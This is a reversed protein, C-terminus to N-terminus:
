TRPKRPKAVRKIGCGYPKSSTTTVQKGALVSNLADTVYPVYEASKKTNKPDNDLAGAYRVVGKGDIVFTHPTTQAQFLDALVNGVDAVLRYKVGKKAADGRFRAFPKTPKGKADVGPKADAIEGKNSNIGIMVVEKGQFEKAMTKLKPVAPKMYPCTMSYWSLVVTKGRLDKMTVKKGDIDVLTLAPDVVSGVTYVKPKAKTADPESIKQPTTVPIQQAPTVAALLLACPLTLLLNKM